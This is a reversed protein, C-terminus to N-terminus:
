QTLFSSVSKEIGIREEPRFWKIYKNRKFWTRQRKAYQWTDKLIMDIMESREIKSQAYLAGYRYELGLAEMRKWSLSDRHLKKVERVIGVLRRDLRTKIKAKLEEDDMDLGIILSEYSLQHKLEPVKGLSKVIEIARILRVRNHKDITQARKPDLRKLMIYLKEPSFKELKKRLVLNPPVEPFVHDFLISDIYFGTGGVIIPLHNRAIIEHIKKKALKQYDSVSFVRKPSLVDLLHHPINKMEKKTIKGSGIDLGRYVQRSDASIVEGKFKKAIHVALDSKGTATPGCIVLIKPLKSLSM